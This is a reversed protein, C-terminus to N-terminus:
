RMFGIAVFAAAAVGLAPAGDRLLPASMKVVTAGLLGAAAAALGALVRQLADIDGYRGYLAGLILVITM